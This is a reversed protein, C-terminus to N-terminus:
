VGQSAAGSVLPGVELFPELFLVAFIAPLHFFSSDAVYFYSHVASLHDYFTPMAIDHIISMQCM